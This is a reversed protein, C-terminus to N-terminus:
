LVTLFVRWFVRCFDRWSGRWFVRWFVRWIVRWFVRLTVQFASSRECEIFHSHVMEKFFSLKEFFLGFKFFFFVLFFFQVKEIKKEIKKWDKKSRSRLEANWTVTQTKRKKKWVQGNMLLKFSGTEGTRSSDKSSTYPLSSSSSLSSLIVKFFLWVTEKQDKM